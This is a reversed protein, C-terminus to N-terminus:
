LYILLKFDSSCSLCITVHYLHCKLHIENSKACQLIGIQVIQKQSFDHPVKENM